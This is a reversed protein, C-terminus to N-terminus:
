YTYFDNYYTKLETYFEEFESGLSIPIQKIDPNRRIEESIKNKFALQKEPSYHEGCYHVYLVYTEYLAFFLWIEQTAGNEKLFKELNSFAEFISFRIKQINNKGSLSNDHVTHYYIYNPIYAFGQSLLKM